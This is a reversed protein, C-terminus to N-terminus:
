PAEGHDGGGCRPGHPSGCVAYLAWGPREDVLRFGGSRPRDGDRVLVYDFRELLPGATPPGFLGPMPNRMGAYHVYSFPYGAFSSNPLGGRRISAYQEIEITAKNDPAGFAASYGRRPAWHYLTERPGVRDILASAGRTDADFARFRATLDVLTLAALGLMAAVLPRRPAAGRPGQWAFAAALVALYPFRNALGSQRIEFPLAFSAALLVGAVFAFPRRTRWPADAPGRSGSAIGVVLLAVLTLTGATATPTSAWVYQPLSRAMTWPSVYHPADAASHPDAVQASAWIGALIWSPAAPLPALWRARTSPARWLGFLVAAGIVLALYAMAHWLLTACFVLAIAARSTLDPRTLHRVTLAWGLLVWPLATAFAFFGGVVTWASHIVPFLAVVAWRSQGLLRLLYLSAAVLGVNQLTLLVRGATEISGGLGLALLQTVHLPLSTPTWWPAVVYTGHFPSAPDGMDTLARVLVLFQPYDQGPVIACTWWLSASLATFAVIVTAFAADGARLRALTRM